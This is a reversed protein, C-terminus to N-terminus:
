YFIVNNILGITLKRNRGIKTYILRYKPCKRKSLQLSPDQQLNTYCFSVFRSLCSVKITDDHYKQDLYGIYLVNKHVSDLWFNTVSTGDHM